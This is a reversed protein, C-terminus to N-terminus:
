CTVISAVASSSGDAFTDTVRSQLRRQPCAASFLGKRFRLGFYVLSGSGGAIKPISATARVGYAGEGASSLAVPFVVEGNIPAPVYTRILLKNRNGRYATAEAGTRIWEQEPFAVEWKIRGGGVTAPECNGWDFAPYIQTPTWPCRPIGSLDLRLQRDLDFRVETAAPPHSGDETSITDALRLSVPIRGESPVPIPSPAADFVSKVNPLPILLDSKAARPPTSVGTCERPLRFSLESGDAFEAAGRAFLHGGPCTAYLGRQLKLDLSSLAVANGAIQPIRAKWSLGFRGEEIKRVRVPFVVSTKVPEPVSIHALLTTVGHKTGGNFLLIGPGEDVPKRASRQSQSQVSARGSGILASRCVDQVAKGNLNRLQSLSCRSRRDLYLGLHKDTEFAVESVAPPPSGDVTGVRASFVLTVRSLETKSLRTPSLAGNFDGELNGSTEHVPRNDAIAPVPMAACLAVVVVVSNIALRKM